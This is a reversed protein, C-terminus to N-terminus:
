QIKHVFDRYCADAIQYYGNVAPHVGNSQYVEKTSNRVNVTREATMMNHETDFQGSIQVFSVNDTDNAIEEYLKNLRVVHSMANYYTWKASAGYNAPLGEFSPMELGLLVIQCNPFSAHVNSIFTGISSRFAEDSASMSNWGLLIYLYDLSTKGQAQVYNLFDVASTNENWFPNGAAQVSATYVINATNVGGSAWTLTGSVPLTGSASTRIMKIRGAEVTEIKWKNGNADTYVSHQDDATKGHSASTIWMFGDSKNETNYSEITWGGYGEYPVRSTTSLCTGIFSINSLGDGSPTGNTATLRRHFEDPVYGGNTLSDGVYLVVKETTPSSAKSKVSLITECSALLTHTNDYVSIKLTHNGVDGATPTYIFRKRFPAGKGCVAEIYYDDTNRCKIIGNWFLEFTDGVVLEYQKPLTLEVKVESEDKEIQNARVLLNNQYYKDTVTAGFPEYASVESGEEFMVTDLLQKKNAFNLIIYAANQPATLTEPTDITGSDTPAKYGSIFTKDAAYWVANHIMTGGVWNSGGSWTYNTGGNVPIYDSRRYNAIYENDDPYYEIAGNTTKAWSGSVVTEVNFLNKSQIVIQERDSGEASGGGTEIEVNGNEDPTIGNVSAVAGINLRAQAKKEEAIDQETYLVANGANNLREDIEEGTYSLRYETAM